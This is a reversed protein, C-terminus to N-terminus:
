SPTKLVVVRTQPDRASIPEKDGIGATTKAKAKISSVPTEGAEAAATSL